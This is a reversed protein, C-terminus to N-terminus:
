LRVVGTNLAYYEDDFFTFSIQFADGSLIKELYDELIKEFENPTEIFNESDPSQNQAVEAWMPRSTSDVQNFFKSYVLLKCDSTNWYDVFGSTWSPLNIIYDERNYFKVSLDQDYSGYNSVFFKEQDQRRLWNIIEM